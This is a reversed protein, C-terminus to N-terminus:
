DRSRTHQTLTFRQNSMIDRVVDPDGVLQCGNNSMKLCWGGQQLAAVDANNLAAFHEVWEQVEDFGLRLDDHAHFTGTLLRHREGNEYEGGRLKYVVCEGIPAPSYMPERWLIVGLDGRPSVEFCVLKTSGLEPLMADPPLEYASEWRACGGQPIVITHTVFTYSVKEQGFQQEGQGYGHSFGVVFKSTPMGGLWDDRDLTALSHGCCSERSWVADHENDDDGGARETGVLEFSTPLPLANADQATTVECGNRSWLRLKKDDCTGIIGWCSGGDNMDGHPLAIVHLAVVQFQDQSRWLAKVPTFIRDLGSHIGTVKHPEWGPRVLWVTGDPAAMAVAINGHQIECGFAGALPIEFQLNEARPQTDFFAGEPRVLRSLTFTVEWVYGGTATACLFTLSRGGDSKFMRAGPLLAGGFLLKLRGLPTDRNGVNAGGVACTEVLSM